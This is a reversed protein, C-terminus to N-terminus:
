RMWIAAEYGGRRIGRRLTLVGELVAALAAEDGGSGLGLKRRVFGDVETPLRAHAARLAAADGAGRAALGAVVDVYFGAGGGGAEAAAATEALSDAFRGQRLLVEARWLRAEVDGPLLALGRDLAALAEGTRGLLLLAGGRWCHGLNRAAGGAIGADLAALAERFRGMWLLLEGKWTLFEARRERPVAQEAARLAAAAGREDGRCLLAEATSCESLWHGDSPFRAAARFHPLARDFNGDVRVRLKALRWRMWGYRKAPFGAVAELDAGRSADLAGRYFLGWPSRPAAALFRELAALLEGRQALSTEDRDTEEFAFPWNLVELRASDRAADLVAEGCRAAEAFNGLAAALRLRESWGQADGAAP